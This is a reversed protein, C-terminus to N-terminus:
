LFFYQAKGSYLRIGGTSSILIKLLLGRPNGSSFPNGGQIEVLNKERGGKSKWCKEAMKTKGGRIEMGKRRTKVNKCGRFDTM